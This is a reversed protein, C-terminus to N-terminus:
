KKVTKKTELLSILFVQVSPKQFLFKYDMRTQPVMFLNKEVFMKHATKILSIENEEFDPFTSPNTKYETAVKRIASLMHSSNEPKLLFESINQTTLVVKSNPSQNVTSM